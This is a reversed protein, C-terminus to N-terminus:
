NLSDSDIKRMPQSSRILKEIVNTGLRRANEQIHMMACSFQQSIDGVRDIIDQPIEESLVAPGTIFTTCDENYAQVLGILCCYREVLAEVTHTPDKVKEHLDEVLHGLAEVRTKLQKTDM